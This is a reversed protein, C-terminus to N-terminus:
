RWKQFGPFVVKKSLKQQRRSSGYFLKSFIVQRPSFVTGRFSSCTGFGRWFFHRVDSRFDQFFCGKEVAETAQPQQRLVAEFFDGAPRFVGHRQLVLLDWFWALFTGLTVESIRSFCGKEVAETAQPQQRLVAEFFDGAPPFVRYRQLVLLDWFWALFTLTVESIKSFCCKEVAETAQPQQRLVAEFFDGAPCSFVMASFSPITRQLPLRPPSAWQQRGAPFTDGAQQGSAQESSGAAQQRAAAEADKQWSGAAASLALLLLCFM